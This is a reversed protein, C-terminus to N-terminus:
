EASKSASLRDIWLQLDDARILTRRGCKFSKLNGDRIHAYLTTRGLGSVACAEALNYALKPTM